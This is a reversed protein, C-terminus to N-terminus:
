KLLSWILDAKITEEKQNESVYDVKLINIWIALHWCCLSKAFM